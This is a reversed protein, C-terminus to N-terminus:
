NEFWALLFMALVLSEKKPPPLCIKGPNYSNLWMFESHLVKTKRHYIMASRSLHSFEYGPNFGPSQRAGIAAMQEEIKRAREAPRPDPAHQFSGQAM